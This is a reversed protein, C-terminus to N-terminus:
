PAAETGSARALVQGACDRAWADAALVEDLSGVRARPNTASHAELVAANTAAIASLTLLLFTGGVAFQYLTSGGLFPYTALVLCLATFMYFYRGRLHRLVNSSDHLHGEM